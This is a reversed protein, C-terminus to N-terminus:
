SCIFTVIIFYCYRIYNNRLSSQQCSGNPGFFETEILCGRQRQVEMSLRESSRVGRGRQRHLKEGPGLGAGVRFILLIVCVNSKIIQHLSRSAVLGKEKNSSGLPLRYYANNDIVVSRLPGRGGAHHLGGPALRHLEPDGSQLPHWQPLPLLGQCQQRWPRRRVHPVDPM